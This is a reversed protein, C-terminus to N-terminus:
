AAATPHRVIWASFGSRRAFHCVRVASARAYRAAHGVRALSLAAGDSLGNVSVAATLVPDAHVIGGVYVGSGLYVSFQGANASDLM